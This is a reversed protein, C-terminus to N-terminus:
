PNSGRQTAGPCDIDVPCQGGPRPAKRNKKVRWQVCSVTFKNDIVMVVKRELMVARIVVLLGDEPKVVRNKETLM